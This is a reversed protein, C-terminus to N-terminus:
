GGTTGGIDIGFKSIAGAYFEPPGPILPVFSCNLEKQSGILFGIGGSIDCTLTGAQLYEQAVATGVALLSATAVSLVMLKRMISVGTKLGVCPTVWRSLRSPDGPLRLGVGPVM